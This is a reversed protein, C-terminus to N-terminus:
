DEEPYLYAEGEIRRQNLPRKECEKNETEQELASLDATYASHAARYRRILQHSIPIKDV